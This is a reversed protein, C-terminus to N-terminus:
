QDVEEPSPTLGVEAAFTELDAGTEFEIFKANLQLDGEPCIKRLQALDEEVQESARGFRDGYQMRMFSAPDSPATVTATVGHITAKSTKSANLISYVQENGDRRIARRWRARRSSDIVPGKAGRAAIRHTQVQSRVGDLEAVYMVTAGEEGVEFPSGYPTGSSVPDGFDVTYRIAANPPISALTVMRKSATKVDIRVEVDNRWEQPEGTEHKGHSDTALFWMRAADTEIKGGSVSPSSSSVSSSRAYHVTDGCVPAIDLHCRGTEPDRYTRSLIVLTKDAAFPPKEVYGGPHQRWQKRDLCEKRLEDLEHPPLWIWGPFMAANRKVDSWPLSKSTFIDEEARLRLVDFASVVDPYFKKRDVMVKRIQEEGDYKNAAFTMAVAVKTLGARLPFHLTKFTERVQSGFITLREQHLAEAEEMQPTGRMMRKHEFDKLIDESARLGRAAADLNTITGADGTLFAVRNKYDAGAYFATAHPNLGAPHPEVIVLTVKDQDLEIEDPAPLALVRQYLDGDGPRFMEELKTRLTKTVVEATYSDSYSQLKAVVNEVNSFYFKGDRTRHLYWASNRLREVADRVKSADKLPSVMYETVESESLGLLPDTATSLSSMLLLNAVPVFHSEGTSSDMREALSSGRSAIDHSVANDLTGNIKKIASSAKGDNLDIHQLGILYVDDARDKAWVARTIIRVLTILDRTQQYGPNERFRACIHRISPHFPYSAHIQAKFSEPTGHVLDMAKAKKLADVYAEAVEEIRDDDEMPLSAFVRKRLIHFIEDSNLKVPSIPVAQRNTESEFTRIADNIVLSGEKYTNVLDTMVVCLRPLAATASLLNALARGTVDALHSSGVRVSRADQLYTPLEDFMIVTPKDALLKVWDTPSPAKAVGKYFKEFEAPKGLKRAIYGWLYEDFSDRGNIAIVEATGFDWGPSLDPMLTKRLDPDSALLGFAIISHTKGGGMAQTLYFVGNQSRGSLREFGQEVLAKLGDTMHNKGFFTAPDISGSVFDELREVRDLLTDDFVTENPACLTRVTAVLNTGATFRERYTLREHRAPLRRPTGDM